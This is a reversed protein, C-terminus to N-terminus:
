LPPGFVPARGEVQHGILGCASRYCWEVPGGEGLSEPPQGVPGIRSVSEYHRFEIPGGSVSAVQEVEHFRGGALSPV